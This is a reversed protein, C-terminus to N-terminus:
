LKGEPESESRRPAAGRSDDAWLLLVRQIPMHYKGPFQIQESRPLDTYKTGMGCLAERTVDYQSLRGDDSWAKGDKAPGVTTWIEYMGNHKAIKGLEAVLAPILESQKIGYAFQKRIEVGALILAPRGEVEGKLAYVVGYHELTEPDILRLPQFIPNALEFTYQGACTEGIADYFADYVGKTAVVQVERHEKKQSGTAFKRLEGKVPKLYNDICVQRTKDDLTIGWSALTEPIHGEFANVLSHYFSHWALPEDGAPPALEVGTVKPLLGRVSKLASSLNGAQAAQQLAAKIFQAEEASGAPPLNAADLQAIQSVSQLSAGRAEANPMFQGRYKDFLDDQLKKDKILYPKAEEASAQVSFKIKGPLSLVAPLDRHRWERIRAAFHQKPATFPQDKHFALDALRFVTEITDAAALKSPDEKRLYRVVSDLVQTPPLEKTAAFIA